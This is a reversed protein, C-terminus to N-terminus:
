QEFIGMLISSVEKEKNSFARTIFNDEITGSYSPSVRFATGKTMTGGGSRGGTGPKYEYGIVITKDGLTLLWDLWHLDAGKETRVHGESLGLLNLFQKPQCQIEIGGSLNDNIKKINLETSEVVSNVIKEVALDPTGPLLGFQANLSRAQGQALISQIEPQSRIWSEVNRKFIGLVKRNKLRIQNNMYDAIAKNIDRAIQQESELLKLTIM